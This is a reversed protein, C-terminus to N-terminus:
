RGALHKWAQTSKRNGGVGKHRHEGQKLVHNAFFRNHQTMKREIEDISPEEMLFNQEFYVYIIYANYEEAAIATDIRDISRNKVMQDFVHRTIECPKHVLEELFFRRVSQNRQQEINIIRAIKMVEPTWMVQRFLAFAQNLYEEPTVTKLYASLDISPFNTKGLSQKFLDFISELLADKSEYHKYLSSARIGVRGAIERMSVNGYGNESFLDITAQLIRERTPTSQEPDM